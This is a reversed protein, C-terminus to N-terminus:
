LQYGAECIRIVREGPKITGDPLTITSNLNGKVIINRYTEKGTSDKKAFTIVTNM